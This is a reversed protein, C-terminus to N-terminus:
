MLTVIFGIMAVVTIVMMGYQIKRWIERYRKNIIGSALMTLCLLIASILMTIYFYEYMKDM